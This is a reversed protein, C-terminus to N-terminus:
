ILLMVQTQGAKDPLLFVLHGPQASRLVAQIFIGTEIAICRLFIVSKGLAQGHQGMLPQAIPEHRVRSHIVIKQIAIVIKVEVIEKAQGGGALHVVVSEAGMKPSAEGIHGVMAAIQLQGGTEVGIGVLTAVQSRFGTQTLQVAVSSKPLFGAGKDLSAVAHELVLQDEKSVQLATIRAKGVFTGHRKVRQIPAKKLGM